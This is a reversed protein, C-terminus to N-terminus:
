PTVNIGGIMGTGNPIDIVYGNNTLTINSQEVNASSLDVECDQSTDTGNCTATMNGGSNKIVVSAGSLNAGTISFTHMGSSKSAGGNSINLIRPYNSNTTLMLRAKQYYNNGGYPFTTSPPSSSSYSPINIPGIQNSGIYPIAAVLYYNSGGVNCNTDGNDGCFTFNSPTLNQLVLNGSGDSTPRSDTPSMNDFYYSTDTTESYKKQGGKAYLKLNAIASGSPDTTEALLSYQGMPDITLTVSSSQQVIINQNPFNPSLSGSSAITTLSSYNSKTASVVYGNSGDPTLGYFIAVGNSDSSDNVNIGLSSNIVSVNAGSVPNGSSDILRVVLSGTTSDTEAVRAAINTDLESVKKSNVYVKVNAIKYDAPNLDSSASAPEPLNRCLLNKTAEDPYNACGDFADDIYNISTKIEYNVNDLTVNETNPLPSPHPIAGGVVALNDYPLSKLYEIRNTALETGIKKQKAFIATSNLAVYAAMTSIAMIGIVVSSVVIEIITFGKNDVV